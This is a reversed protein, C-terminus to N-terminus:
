TEQVAVNTFKMAQYCQEVSEWERGDFMFPRVQGPWGSYFMSRIHISIAHLDFLM